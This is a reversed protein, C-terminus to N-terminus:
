TSFIRPIDLPWPGKARTEWYGGLYEWLHEGTDPDLSRKFWRPAQEEGSAEALKRAIRQKEELRVKETSALSFEGNEMARQDPRFRSDTPCLHKALNTDLQNLTLSFPNFHYLKAANPIAQPRKQFLRILQGTNVDRTDLHTHWYGSLEYAVSGSSDKVVGSLKRAQSSRWGTQHFDICCEVGTSLCKIVMTGFHDLWIKGVIINNISTTVKRWTYHEDGIVIHGTGEPILELSKGWLRNRVRVENFITYGPGQCFSASVPPHHCVQESLYRFNDRASVYEFTEGLLPNFPKGIRGEATSAYESVAFAAIYQIRMLPDTCGVAQNVLEAYEMSEAIRQLMSLPECFNVPLPFRFLDKGIASKLISWLSIPPMGSVDAPLTQRFGHRWLQEYGQSCDRLFSPIVLFNNEVADQSAQIAAENVVMEAISSSPSEPPSEIADFFEDRESVPLIHKYHRVYSELRTNEVALAKLSDGLIRKEEHLSQNKEQLATYCEQNIALSTQLSNIHRIAQRHLEKFAQNDQALKLMDELIGELLKLQGVGQSSENESGTEQLTMRPPLHTEVIDLAHSAERLVNKAHSIALIWRKAETVTDARLHYRVSANTTGIVEFRCKDTAHPVLRIFEINTSGRCSVPYEGQNKYYSLSNDELVFWRRKYGEAYNTWKALYGFVKRDNAPDKSRVLPAERLVARVNEAKALEFPIRGKRNLLFPDAGLELAVLVLEKHDVRAAMHLVSDGNANLTNIDVLSKTRNQSFLRALGMADGHRALSFMDKTKCSIFTSRSLELLSSVQKNKAVDMASRGEVDRITDDIGSIALLVELCELRALKSVIHLPTSGEANQENPNFKEDKLLASLMDATGLMSVLHVLGGFQNKYHCEEAGQFRIAQIAEALKGERLYESVKIAATTDDISKTVQTKCLQPPITGQNSNREFSEQSSRQVAIPTATDPM